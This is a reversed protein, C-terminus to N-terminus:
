DSNSEDGSSTEGVSDSDILLGADRDGLEIDSDSEGGGDIDIGFSTPSGPKHLVYNGATYGKVSIKVM